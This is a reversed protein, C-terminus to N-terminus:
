KQRPAPNNPRKQQPANIKLQLLTEIQGAKKLEDKRPDQAHMKIHTELTEWSEADPSAGHDLLTKVAEVHLRWIANNLPADEGKGNVDAGRQLLIDIVDLQGYKAAESLATWGVSNVADIAAGRKLLLRVTDKRDNSAAAALATPSIYFHRHNHNHRDIADPYKDLFANVAANDGAGAAVLFNTQEEDTPPTQKNFARNLNQKM